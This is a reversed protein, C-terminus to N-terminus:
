FWGISQRLVHNHARWRILTGLNPMITNNLFGVDIVQILPRLILLFLGILLMETGYSDWFSSVETSALVDVLRGLYSILWVEVVAVFMTLFGTIAFVRRFPLCYEWIFPWLKSPPCDSQPYDCYPDVLNEFFRFM